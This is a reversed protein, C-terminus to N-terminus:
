NGMMTNSGRKLITSLSDTATQAPKESNNCAATFLVVLIAISYILKRM